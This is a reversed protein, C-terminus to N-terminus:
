NKGNRQHDRKGIINCGLRLFEFRLLLLQRPTFSPRKASVLIESHLTCGLSLYKLASQVYDGVITSILYEFLYKHPRSCTEQPSPLHIVCFSFKRWTCWNTLSLSILLLRCSSKVDKEWFYCIFEIKISKYKWSEVSYEILDIKEPGTCYTFSFHKGTKRLQLIHRIHSKSLKPREFSDFTVEFIMIWVDVMQLPRTSHSPVTVVHSSHV